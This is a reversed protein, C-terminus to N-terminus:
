DDLLPVKYDGLGSGNARNQIIKVFIHTAKRACAKGASERSFPSPQPSFQPHYDFGVTAMTDVGSLVARGAEFFARRDNPFYTM